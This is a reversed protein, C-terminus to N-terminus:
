PLQVPNGQYDVAFWRTGRVPPRFWLFTARLRSRLLGHSREWRSMDRYIDRFRGDLEGNDIVRAIRLLKYRARRTCVMTNPYNLEDEIVAPTALNLWLDNVVQLAVEYKDSDRQHICWTWLTNSDRLIMRGVTTPKTYKRLRVINRVKQTSQEIALTRSMQKRGRSIRFSYAM